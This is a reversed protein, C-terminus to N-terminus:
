DFNFDKPLYQKLKKPLIDDLIEIDKESIEILIKNNQTYIKKKLEKRALYKEDDLGWFEIWVKKDYPM